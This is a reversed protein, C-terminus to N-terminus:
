ATIPAVYFAPEHGAPAVAGGRLAAMHGRTRYGYPRPSGTLNRVLRRSQRLAHQCTPPDLAGTAANPVAACDGLAHVAPLGPVAFTEGVRVRGRADLPLGLAAAAPNAAM